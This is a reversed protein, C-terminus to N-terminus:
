GASALIGRLARRFADLSFNEAVYRRCANGVLRAYDRDYLLKELIAALSGDVHLRPLEPFGPTYQARYLSCDRERAIVPIGFRASELPPGGYSSACVVLRTRAYIKQMGTNGVQPYVTVRHRLDDFAELFIPHAWISQTSDADATGSVMEFTLRSDKQLARRVFRLTEGGDETFDHTSNRSPFFLVSNETPDGDVVDPIPLPLWAARDRLDEPLRDFCGDSQYSHTLWVNRHGAFRIVERIEEEIPENPASFFQLLYIRATRPISALGGYITLYACDSLDEIHGIWNPSDGAWKPLPTGVPEGTSLLGRAVLREWRGEGRLNDDELAGALPGSTINICYRM